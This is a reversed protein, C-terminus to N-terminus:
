ILNELDETSFNRLLERPIGKEKHLQRKMKLRYIAEEQIQNM